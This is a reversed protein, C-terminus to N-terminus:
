SCLEPALRIADMRDARSPKHMARALVKVIHLYGPRSESVNIM